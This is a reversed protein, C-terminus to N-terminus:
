EIKDKAFGHYEDDVSCRGMFLIVQSLNIMFGNFISNCGDRKGGKRKASKGCFRNARRLRWFRCLIPTTDASPAVVSSPVSALSASFAAAAPAASIVDGGGHTIVFHAASRHNIFLKGARWIESHLMATTKFERRTNGEDTQWCVWQEVRM